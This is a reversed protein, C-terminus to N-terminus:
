EFKSVTVSNIDANLMIDFRVKDEWCAKVFMDMFCVGLVKGGPKMAKKIIENAGEPGITCQPMSIGGLLVIYDAGYADVLGGIQMGIGDVYWVARAEDLIGDPVLVQAPRDERITYAFLEVFPVCTGACGVYVIKKPPELGLGKMTSKFAKLMGSLGKTTEVLKKEM